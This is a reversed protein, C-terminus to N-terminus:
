PKAPKARLVGLQVLIGTFDYVRREYTILGQEDTELLRANRFEIHRNTGPMGFFENVHTANVTTFIAIRPPDVMVADITFTADPFSTFFARSADEIAKRGRLTAYIPSEAVADPGYYQAVAAPDRRDWADLFGDVMAQLAERTM